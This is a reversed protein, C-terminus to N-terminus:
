FGGLRLETRKSGLGRRSESGAGKGDGWKLYPMPLATAIGAPFLTLLCKSVHTRLVFLALLDQFRRHLKEGPAPEPACCGPVQRRLRVHIFGNNEPVKSALGFEVSGNQFFLNVLAVVFVIYLDCLPGFRTVGSRKQFENAVFEQLPM